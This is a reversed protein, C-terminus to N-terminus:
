FIQKFVEVKKNEEYYDNIIKGNTIESNTENINSFFHTNEDSENQDNFMINEESQKVMKEVNDVDDDDDNEYDDDDEYDDGDDHHDIFKERQNQTMSSLNSHQKQIQSTKYIDDHNNISADGDGHDIRRLIAISKNSPTPTQQKSIQQIVTTSSCTSLLLHNKTTTNKLSRTTRQMMNNCSHTSRQSNPADIEDTIEAENINAFTYKEIEKEDKTGDSHSAKNNRRVNLNFKDQM